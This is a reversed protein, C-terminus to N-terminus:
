DLQFASHSATSVLHAYEFSALAYSSFIIWRQVFHVSRSLNLSQVLTEIPDIGNFFEDRAGSLGRLRLRDVKLIRKMHAFLMEVKKREKRTQQYASTKGIARAVDRVNEHQSRLIKIYM